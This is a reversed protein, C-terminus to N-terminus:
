LTINLWMEIDENTVLHDAPKENVWQRLMGIRGNLEKRVRSRESALLNEIFTIAQEMQTVSRPDEGEKFWTNWQHFFETKWNPTNMRQHNTLVIASIDLLYRKLDTLKCDIVM